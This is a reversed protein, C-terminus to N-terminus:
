TYVSPGLFQSPTPYILQPPARLCFCDFVSSKKKSKSFCLRECVNMGVFYTRVGVGMLVESISRSISSTLRRRENFSYETQILYTRTLGPIQDVIPGPYLLGRVMWGSASEVSLYKSWRVAGFCHCEPNAFVGVM